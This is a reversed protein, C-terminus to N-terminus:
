VTEDDEAVGDYKDVTFGYEEFMEELDGADVEPQGDSEERLWLNLPEGNVVNHFTFGAQKLIKNFPYTTGAIALNPGEVELPFIKIESQHANDFITEDVTVSALDQKDKESVIRMADLVMQAQEATYVKASYLKFEDNWRLMEALLKDGVKAKFIENNGYRPKGRFYIAGTYEDKKEGKQFKAKVLTFVAHAEKYGSKSSSSASSTPSILSSLDIVKKGTKAKKITKAVPSVRKRAAAAALLRPQRAKDNALAEPSMGSGVPSEARVPEKRRSPM